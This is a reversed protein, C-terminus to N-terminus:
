RAKSKRKRDSEMQERQMKPSRRRSTSAEADSIAQGTRRVVRTKSPSQAMQVPVNRFGTLPHTDMEIFARKKGNTHAIGIIFKSLELGAFM